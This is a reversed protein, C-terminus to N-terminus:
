QPSIARQWHDTICDRDNCQIFAESQLMVFARSPRSPETLVACGTKGSALDSEASPGIASARIGASSRIESLLHSYMSCAKHIALDIEHRACRQERPRM